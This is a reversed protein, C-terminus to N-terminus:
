KAGLMVLEKWKKFSIRQRRCHSLEGTSLILTFSVLYTDDYTKYSIDVTSRHTKVAVVAIARYDKQGPLDPRVTTWMQGDFHVVFAESGHAIHEVVVLTKSDGTWSLVYVPSAEATGRTFGTPTERIELKPAYYFVTFKGDPSRVHTGDSLQEPERGARCPTLAALILLVATAVLRTPPWLM